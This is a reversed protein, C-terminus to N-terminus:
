LFQRCPNKLEGEEGCLELDKHLLVQMNILLVLEFVPEPLTVSLALVLDVFLGHQVDEFLQYKRDNFHKGLNRKIM